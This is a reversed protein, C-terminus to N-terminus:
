VPLLLKSLVVTLRDIVVSPVVPESAAPFRRSQDNVREFLPPVSISVAGALLKHSYGGPVLEDCLSKDPNLM